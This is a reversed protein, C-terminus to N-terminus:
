AHMSTEKFFEPLTDRNDDIKTNKEFKDTCIRNIMRQFRIKTDLMQEM